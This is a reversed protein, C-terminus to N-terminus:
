NSLALFSRRAQPILVRRYYWEHLTGVRHNYRVAPLLYDPEFRPDEACRRLFTAYGAHEFAAKIYPSEAPSSVRDVVSSPTPEVAQHCALCDLRQRSEGLGGGSLKQIGTPTEEGAQWPFGLSLYGGSDPLYEPFLRPLVLWIWYSSEGAAARLDGSQLPPAPNAISTAAAVQYPTYLQITLLLLCSLLSRLGVKWLRRVRDYLRISELCQSISPVVKVSSKFM